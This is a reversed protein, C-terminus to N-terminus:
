KMKLYCKKLLVLKQQPVALVIYGQILGSTNEMDTPIHFASVM